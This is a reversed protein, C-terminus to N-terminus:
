GPGSPTGNPGSHAREPVSLPGTPALFTDNPVWRHVFPECDTGLPIVTPPVHPCLSAVDHRPHFNGAHAAPVRFPAPAWHRRVLAASAVAAAPGSAAAAALSALEAPAVLALSCARCRTSLPCTAAICWRLSPMCICGCLCLM